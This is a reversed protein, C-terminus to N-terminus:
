AYATIAAQSSKTAKNSATINQEATKVTLRTPKDARNLWSMDTQAEVSTFFAKTVSIHPMQAFSNSTMSVFKRNEPYSIDREVKISQIQKRKHLTSSKSSTVRPEGCNICKHNNESTYGDHNEESCKANAKDMDLNRFNSAVYLIQFM